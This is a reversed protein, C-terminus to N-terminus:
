EVKAAEQFRFSKAAKSAVYATFEEVNEYGMEQAFRTLNEILRRTEAIENHSRACGECHTGDETCFDRGRCSNFKMSMRLGRIFSRFGEVPTSASVAM